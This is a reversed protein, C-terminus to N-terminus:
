PIKIPIFRRADGVKPDFRVVVQDPEEGVELFSNWDSFFYFGNKKPPPLPEQAVPDLDFSSSDETTTSSSASSRAEDEGAAAAENDGGSVISEKDQKEEATTSSAKTTEETDSPEVTTTTAPKPAQSTGSLDLYVKLPASTETSTTTTSKPAGTTTSTENEGSEDSQRKFKAAAPVVSGGDIPELDDTLLLLRENLDAGENSDALSRKTGSRPKNTRAESALASTSLPATRQFKSTLQTLGQVMDSNVDSEAKKLEIITVTQTQKGDNQDDRKAHDNDFSKKGRSDPSKLIGYSKLLEELEADVIQDSSSRPMPKFSEFDIAKVEPATIGVNLKRRTLQPPSPETSPTLKYQYPFNVPQFEEQAIHPPFKEDTLLGISQLLEQLEPTLKPAAGNLPPAFQTSQLDHSISSKQLTTAPKAKAVTPVPISVTTYTPKTALYKQTNLDSNTLGENLEIELSPFISNRAANATPLPRFTTIKTKSPLNPKYTTVIGGKQKVPNPSFANATTRQVLVQQPSSGRTDSNVM